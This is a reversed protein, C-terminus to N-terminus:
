QLRRFVYSKRIAYNWSFLIVTAFVKSILVDLSIVTTLVWLMAQNLLLGVTSIAFVLLLETTKTFRARSEFVFHISLVYNVATALIFSIPAIAFWNLKYVNVAVGLVTFDIVAAVFGVGFYRIAIMQVLQVETYLVFVSIWREM